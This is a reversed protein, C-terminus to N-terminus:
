RVAPGLAHVPVPVALNLLPVYREGHVVAFCTRVRHTTASSVASATRRCSSVALWEAHLSTYHSRFNLGNQRRAQEALQTPLRDTVRGTTREYKAHLHYEDVANRIVALRVAARHTTGRV